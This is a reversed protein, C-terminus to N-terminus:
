LITVSFSYKASENPALIKMGRKHILLDDEDACTACGTWPELAVFPADNLASWIGLYDFGNFDMEVGRGSLRSYLKVKRSQPHDFILADHDFISHGLAITDQNKLLTKANSFDILRDAYRYLPM